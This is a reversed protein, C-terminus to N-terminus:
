VKGWKVSIEKNEFIEDFSTDSSSVQDM